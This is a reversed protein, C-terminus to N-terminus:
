KYRFDGTMRNICEPIGKCTDPCDDPDMERADIVCCHRGDAYKCQWWGWCEASVLSLFASLLVLAGPLTSSIRVM